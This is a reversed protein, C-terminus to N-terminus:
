VHVASNFLLEELAFFSLLPTPPKISVMQATSEINSSVIDHVKEEYLM